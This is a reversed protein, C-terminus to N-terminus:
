QPLRHRSVTMDYLDRSFMNFDPPKVHFFRKCKEHYTHQYDSQQGAAAAAVFFRRGRRSRCSVFFDKNINCGTSCGAHIIREAAGHSFDEIFVNGAHVGACLAGASGDGVDVQDFVAFNFHRQDLVIDGVVRRVASFHEFVFFDFCDLTNGRQVIFGDLDYGDFAFADFGNGVEFAFANGNTRQSAAGFGIGTLDHFDEANGVGVDFRM